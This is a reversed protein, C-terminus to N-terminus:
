PAASVPQDRVYVSHWADQFVRRYAGIRGPATAPIRYVSNNLRQDTVVYRM